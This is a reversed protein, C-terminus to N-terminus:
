HAPVIASELQETFAKGLNLLLIVYVYIYIYIYLALIYIYIYIYIYVTCTYIYIYIYIDIRIYTHVYYPLSTLLQYIRGSAFYEDLCLHYTLYVVSTM